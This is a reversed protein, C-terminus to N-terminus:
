DESGVGTAIHDAMEIADVYPTRGNHWLEKEYIKWAPVDPLRIDMGCKQLHELQAMFQRQEQKDGALVYRLEKIKNRPLCSDKGQMLKVALLLNDLSAAKGDGDVRYPGFHMNGCVAHYEQERIEALTPAQEGHLLAFDLWCSDNQQSGDAGQRMRAKAASCLEEALEYGRFFPYATKLLAIGGCSYIGEQKLAKMIRQTYVLALKAPCVFTMDDGGLVLPRLPLYLRGDEDNKLSLFENYEDYESVVETLLSVFAKITCERIRLSLNKRDTLTCCSSFKQGMNNGDVHVIALYDEKEKQGLADFETPFAYGSLFDAKEDEPLVSRLKRWLEQEAPSEMGKRRTGARLKAAAEQSIFRKRDADWFNAAEDNTDCCLTLGTYTVNVQPFVTNQGDKLKHVLSTLNYNNDPYSGDSDMELEGIAAGTKLGPYEVLLKKGFESVIKRIDEDAVASQFIVLANGGGIYGIRAAVLQNTWDPKEEKRWTDRDVQEKGLVSCLVDMLADDFVCEVLYSAGINTKLQNGAFIYRQISRTDLLVAKFRM